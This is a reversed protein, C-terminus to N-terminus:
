FYMVRTFLMHKYAQLKRRGRGQNIACVCLVACALLFLAGTATLMDIILM